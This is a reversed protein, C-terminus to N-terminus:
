TALGEKLNIVILGRSNGNHVNRIMDVDPMGGDKSVLVRLKCGGTLLLSPGGEGDAGGKEGM